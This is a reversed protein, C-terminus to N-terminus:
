RDEGDLWSLQTIALSADILALALSAMWLSNGSVYEVAAMGCLGSIALGLWLGSMYAIRKTPCGFWRMLWGKNM